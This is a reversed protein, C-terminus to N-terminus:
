HEHEDSGTVDIARAAGTLSSELMATLIWGARLGFLYRRGSGTEHEVQQAFDVAGAARQGRYQGDALVPVRRKPYWPLLVMAALVPADHVANKGANLCDDGVRKELLDCPRDDDHYRCPHDFLKGDLRCRAHQVVTAVRQGARADDNVDHAGDNPDDARADHEVAAEADVGARYDGGEADAADGDREAELVREGVENASELDREHADHLGAVVDLHATLAAHHLVNCPTVGGDLVAQALRHDDGVRDDGRRREYVKQWCAPYRHGEAHRAGIGRQEFELCPAPIGGGGPVVLGGGRAVARTRALGDVEVLEGGLDNGLRAACCFAGRGHGVPGAHKEGLNALQADLAADHQGHGIRAFGGGGLIGNHAGNRCHQSLICFQM